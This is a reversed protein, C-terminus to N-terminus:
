IDELVEPAPDFAPSLSKSRAPFSLPVLCATLQGPPFFKHNADGLSKCISTTLKHGAPPPSCLAMVKNVGLMKPKNSSTRQLGYSLSSYGRCSGCAWGSM